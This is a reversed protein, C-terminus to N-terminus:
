LMFLLTVTVDLWVCGRTHRSVHEHVWIFQQHQCEKKKKKKIILSFFKFYMGVSPATVWQLPTWTWAEMNILYFWIDRQDKHIKQILQNFSCVWSPHLVGSVSAHWMYVDLNEPSRPRTIFSLTECLRLLPVLCFKFFCVPWLHSFDFPRWVRVLFTNLPVSILAASNWKVSFKNGSKHEAPISGSIVDITVPVRLWSTAATNVYSTWWCTVSAATQGRDRNIISSGFELFLNM